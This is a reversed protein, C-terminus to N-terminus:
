EFLRSFRIFNKFIKGKRLKAEHAIAANFYAVFLAVKKFCFIYGVCMAMAIVTAWTWVFKRVEEFNTKKKVRGNLLLGFISFIACGLFCIWPVQQFRKAWKGDVKVVSFSKKGKGFKFEVPLKYLFPFCDIFVKQYTSIISIQEQKM